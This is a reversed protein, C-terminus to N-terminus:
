RDRLWVLACAVNDGARNKRHAALAADVVGRCAALPRLELDRQASTEVARAVAATPDDVGIGRESIGDTVLVLARTEGLPECGIVCREPHQAPETRADGLFYCRRRGRSAWGLDEVGEGGIRFVHSDGVSAHLLLDDGPRALALSLTSPAPQFSRREADDLLADNAAVLADLAAARWADAGPLAAPEDTWATAHHTLLHELVQESGRSGWHGDAVAILTGARGLAFFAADENPDTYPYTKAAGGRSIAIAAPGEGVVEVAGIEPHEHGRLLASRM